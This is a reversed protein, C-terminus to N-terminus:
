KKNEKNVKEKSKLTNKTTQKSKYNSKKSGTTKKKVTNASKQIVKNSVINKKETINNESPLNNKTEEVNTTAIMKNKERLLYFLGIILVEIILNMVINAVLMDVVIESSYESMTILLYIITHLSMSGLLGILLGFLEKKLFKFNEYIYILLCHSVIFALVSALINTENIKFLENVYVSYDAIVTQSQLSTALTYSITILLQIIGAVLISRYADRKDGYNIILLTCLFTFPFTIFEIGITVNMFTTLKMGILNSIVLLVAMLCTFFTKKFDRNM